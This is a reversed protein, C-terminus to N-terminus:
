QWLEEELARNSADAEADSEIKIDIAPILVDMFKEKELQLTKLFINKLKDSEFIIQVVEDLDDVDNLLSDVYDSYDM